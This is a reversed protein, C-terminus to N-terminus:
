EVENRENAPRQAIMGSPVPQSQGPCINALVRDLDEQM